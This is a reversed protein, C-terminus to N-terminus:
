PLRRGQGLGVEPAEPQKLTARLVPTASGLRAVAPRASPISLGPRPVTPASRSKAVGSQRWARRELAPAAAAVARLAVSELEAPRWSGDVCRAIYPGVQVRMTGDHLRVVDVNSGVSVISEAFRHPASEQDAIERRVQFKVGKLAEAVARREADPHLPLAAIADQIQSAMDVVVRQTNTSGAQVATALMKHQQEASVTGKELHAVLDTHREVAAKDSAQSSRTAAAHQTRTTDALERLNDAMDTMASGIAELRALLPGLELNITSSIAETTPLQELTAAMPKMADDVDRLREALVAMEQGVTGSLRESLGSARETWVRVDTAQAGLRDQLEHLADIRQVILATADDIVSRMETTLTTITHGSTTAAVSTRSKNRPAM